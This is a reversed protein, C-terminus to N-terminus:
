TRSCSCGKERHKILVGPSIFLEKLKLAKALPDIKWTTGEVADLLIKADKEDLTNAITRVKCAGVKPQPPTFDDLLGM